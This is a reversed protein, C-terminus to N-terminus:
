SAFRAPVGHVRVRCLETWTRYGWNNNVKVVIAKIPMEPYFDLEFTQIEPDKRKNIDYHVLGLSVPVDPLDPYSSLALVEIERPASEFQDWVYKSPHEITIGQVFIPESLLIGVHGQTGLMRWCLGVERGNQIIRRPSNSAALYFPNFIASLLSGKPIYTSSTRSFLLKSGRSELAFDAIKTPKNEMRALDNMIYTCFVKKSIVILKYKSVLSSKTQRGHELFHSLALEQDNWYNVWDERNKLLDYFHNPLILKGKKDTQVLVLDTVFDQLDEFDELLDVQALPEKLLRSAMERTESKVLSRLEAALNRRYEDWNDTVTQAARAKSLLDMVNKEIESFKHDLDSIDRQQQTISYLFSATKNYFSSLRHTAAKQMSMNDPKKLYVGSMFFFLLMVATFVRSIKRRSEITPMQNNDFTPLLSFLFLIPDVIVTSVLITIFTLVRIIPEKIIWFTMFLLFVFPRLILHLSKTLANDILASVNESEAEHDFSSAGFSFGTSNRRRLRSSIPGEASYPVNQASLRSLQAELAPNRVMHEVEAYEGFSGDDMTDTINIHTPLPVSNVPKSDLHRNDMQQSQLETFSNNHSHQVDFQDKHNSFTQPLKFSSSM